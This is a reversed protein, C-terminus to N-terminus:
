ACTDRKPDRVVLVYRLDAVATGDHGEVRTERVVFKLSGGKKQYQDTIRPAFRLTEGAFAMRHHLFHQEGHLVHAYDIGLREYVEMPNPAEMELCFLFTPPVPLSPYGAAQAAAVESYVPDDQGTARAFTRLRGPEVEVSFPTLDSNELKKEILPAESITCDSVGAEASIQDVTTISYDHTAFLRTSVNRLLEKVNSM